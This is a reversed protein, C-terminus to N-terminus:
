KATRFSGMRAPRSNVLAILANICLRCDGGSGRNRRQRQHEIFFSCVRQKTFVAGDALV